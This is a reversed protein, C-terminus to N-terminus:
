VYPDPVLVGRVGLDDCREGLSAKREVRVPDDALEARRQRAAFRAAQRQGPQQGTRVVDEDEVLGALVEVRRGRAGEEVVQEGTDASARQEDDGVVLPDHRPAVLHYPERGSGTKARTAGM